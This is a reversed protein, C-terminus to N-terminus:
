TSYKLARTLLPRQQLMHQPRVQIILAVERKCLRLTANWASYNNCACVYNTGMPTCTGDSNPDSSCPNPLCPNAVLAFPLAPCPLTFVVMVDGTVEDHIM